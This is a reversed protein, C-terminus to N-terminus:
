KCEIEIEREITYDYDEDYITAVCNKSYSYKKKDGLSITDTVPIDGDVYESSVMYNVKEGDISTITILPQKNVWSDRGKLINADSVLYDGVKAEPYIASFDTGGNYVIDLHKFRTLPRYVVDEKSRTKLMNDYIIRIIEDNKRTVDSITKECYKM